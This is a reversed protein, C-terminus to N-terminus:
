PMLKLYAFSEFKRPNTCYLVILATFIQAANFVIIMLMVAVIFAEVLFRLFNLM